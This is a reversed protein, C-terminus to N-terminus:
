FVICAPAARDPSPVCFSLYFLLIFFEFRLGLLLCCALVIACFSARVLLLVGIICFLFLCIMRVMQDVHRFRRCLRSGSVFASSVSSAFPRLSVSSSSSPFVLRLLGVFLSFGFQESTNYTGVVVIGGLAYDIAWPTPSEKGPFILGGHADAFWHQSRAFGYPFSLPGGFQFRSPLVRRSLAGM